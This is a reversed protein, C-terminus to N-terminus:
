VQVTTRLHEAEHHLVAAVQWEKVDPFWELFQKVTAGSELNEFLAYVPVRTGTFAWAGSIKRPNREVAPCTDWDTMELAEKQTGADEEVEAQDDGSLGPEEPLAAEAERVDIKGTVVDAILLTRYEQFTAIEERMLRCARDGNATQREVFDVIASQEESPPCLLKIRLFADPYLRLRSSHIGTSCSNYENRYTVSRLMLEAYDICLLSRTNPRYPRYVAYSPSVMGVQRAVGLAAMWAWMTNIVLDGPQCLKHGVNSEAEFMTVNKESRPTVGSLHSVSLLEESGTHSRKDIERFHWKAPRVDWNEPVSNLWRMDSPKYAPYPKGTRVDIRGTVAEHVIAQKQEELLTILKERARIYRQIRRDAHDLFLVIAAQEALPPQVVKMSGIFTWDARPMKAGFTSADVTDIIPKARLLRELFGTDFTTDRPRLVLFEGVCLGGTTPRTVKALYPRLKGFLVDGPAFRKLQSDPGVDPPAGNLQGTWSEVHELAVYLDKGRRETGPEVVNTVSSKLRETTWHAPVEGLWPVGSDQYVPYPKLNHIM